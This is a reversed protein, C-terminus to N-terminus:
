TKRQVRRAVRNLWDILRQLSEPAAGETAHVTHRQGGSEITVNYSFQDVGPMSDLTEAPLDFFGASAVLERLQSAEDPSLTDADIDVALSIGSFGGSREFHILM